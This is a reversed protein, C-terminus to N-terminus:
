KRPKKTAQMLDDSGDLAEYSRKIRGSAAVAASRRSRRPETPPPTFSNELKVEATKAPTELTRSMVM